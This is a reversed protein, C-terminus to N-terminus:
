ISKANTVNWYSNRNVNKKMNKKRQFDPLDRRATNVVRCKIADIHIFIEKVRLYGMVFSALQILDILVNTKINRATQSISSNKKVSGANM